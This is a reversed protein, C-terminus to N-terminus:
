ALAACIDLLMHGHVIVAAPGSVDVSGANYGLTVSGDPLYTPGAGVGLGTVTDGRIIAPGSINLSVSKGNAAFTAKIAGNVIVDGNDFFIGRADNTTYTIAVPFACSTTDTFDTGPLPIFQPAGAAASSALFAAAAAVVPLVLKLHRM